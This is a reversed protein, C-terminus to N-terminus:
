TYDAQTALNSEIMFDINKTLCDNIRERAIIAASAFNEETYGGVLENRVILDVNIFPLTPTIFNQSIATYYWTTKGSGNAGALVYLSPM